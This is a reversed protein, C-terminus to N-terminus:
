LGLEELTYEKELEMGKFKKDLYFLDSESYTHHVADIKVKFILSGDDVFCKKKKITIIHHGINDFRRSINKLIEKEKDTLIPEEYEELLWKIKGGGCRTKFECNECTDLDACKVVKNEVVAFMYNFSEIEKKFKEAKLM